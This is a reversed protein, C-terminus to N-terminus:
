LPPSVGGVSRSRGSGCQFFQFLVSSGSVVGVSVPLVVPVPFAPVPERKWGNLGGFNLLLGKDTPPM